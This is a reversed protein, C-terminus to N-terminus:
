ETETPILEYGMYIGKQIRPVGNKMWVPMPEDKLYHDFFQMMRISLDQKNRWKRLNHAEDNYVLLWSPKSLRRLGMFFEIGQYYPVAGDADNHMILVPTEINPVGFLPSNELYLDLDDWLTKGIRSQTQEYQFQRSLGSDWRIGGYASTMNSVPAGSGAAAFKNTKTILHAVQYGGWSQGQIALKDANVYARKEMAEVGSLICNEASRGPYGEEYVIDPVFVLYNNSTLYSINVISASPQPSYYQHLNDSRREYFYTIMPYKQTADFDEPFYLLGQLPTGDYATWEVLEVSGWYFDKQQPNVKSLQVDAENEDLLFVDPYNNFDMKRYVLQHREKAKEFGSFKFKGEPILTTLNEDQLSFLGASKKFKDYSTLLLAGKWYTALNRDEELRLTRYITNTDRGNTLKRPEEVGSLDLEWLDFEDYVLAKGEATFGGFGYNGPLSPSDHEENFFAVGLQDTLNKVVNTKLNISGWFVDDVNYYLAYNGNPHVIPNSSIGELLLTKKGTSAEVKYADRRWPYAWSRELRYAEDTYALWFDHNKEKDIYVGDLGEDQLQTHTFNNLNLQFVYAEAELQKARAKQEPQIIADTYSWVDVEPLEEDLMTTDKTFKQKPRAYYYLREEDKSFSPKQYKSIEWANPLPAFSSDVVHAVEEGTFVFLEYVVSDKQTADKAALYALKEGSYSANLQHYQFYTSDLFVSQMDEVVYKYVGLDKKKKDKSLAYFFQNGKEPFASEKLHYITDKALTNLSYVIHYDATQNLPKEKKTPKEEKAKKKKKEEPINKTTSAEDKHKEVLFWQAAEKAYSVKKVNSISDVFKKEALSFVKLQPKSQKEKAVKKLKQQRLTDYVPQELFTIYDQQASIKANTARLFRFEDETDIYRVVCYGDGRNTSTKVEYMLINGDPTLEYSSITKWLDYDQHTLSKKQQALLSLPLLCILALYQKFM